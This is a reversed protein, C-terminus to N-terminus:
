LIEEVIGVGEVTEVGWIFRGMRRAGKFKEVLIGRETVVKCTGKEGKRLVKMKKGEADTVSIVCARVQSSRLLDFLPNYKNIANFVATSLFRRPDGSRSVTAPSTRRSESRRVKLDNMWLWGVRGPIIAAFAKLDAIFRRRVNAEDVSECIVDGESVEVDVEAGFFDGAYCAEVGAELKLVGRQGTCPNLVTSGTAISGRLVRGSVAFKKDKKIVGSVTARFAKGEGKQPPRLFRSFCEMLSKSGEADSEILNTGELASVFCM